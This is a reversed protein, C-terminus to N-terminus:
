PYPVKVMAPKLGAPGSGFIKTVRGSGGGGGDGAGGGGGGGGGSGGGAGGAGGGVDFAYLAEFCLNKDANQM